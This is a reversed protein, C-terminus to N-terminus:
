LEADLRSLYDDIDDIASEAAHVGIVVTDGIGYVGHTLGMAPSLTPCGATLLVPAGGFSLDGIGRRVSTVVTNGSVQPPRVDPDFLGVGWRLLPAPVAAFARDAERAAAHQSRRRADALDIAIRELRAQMGLEPYLGVTVNLFHNYAQRVFPKAIPVEAVLSGAADGLCRALAGSVAALVAVTVTPGNLQSRHRVLTRLMRMGAPRTNTSLAPRPGLPPRLLGARTDRSLERHARAARAARWPLFGSAAATIEPVPLRRGFLRGALAAGRAGDALAHAAQMVAVTGPGTGGPLDRVPSFVHLRWPARRTDLQDETLRVVADLCGQWSKDDLQHRLVRDYEVTTPVWRPYTLRSGDEVRTALAPCTQARDRVESIAHEFDTPAGDFAYIIFEDNPVKASMWYFQADVAAMRNPM